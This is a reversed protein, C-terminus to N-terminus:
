RTLSSADGSCGSAIPVPDYQNGAIHAVHCNVCKPGITPISLNNENGRWRGRPKRGQGATHQMPTQPPIYVTLGDSRVAWVHSPASYDFYPPHAKRNPPPIITIKALAAIGM